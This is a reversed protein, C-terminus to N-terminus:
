GFARRLQERLRYEAYRYLEIEGAYIGELESRQAPALPYRQSVAKDPNTNITRSAAPEPVGLLHCFLRMSDDYLETLGVLFFDELPVANLYWFLSSRINDHRAFEMLSMGSEFFERNFESDEATQPHRLFQYYGSIVREVPDRLWTVKVAGPLLHDYADAQFHGHLCRTQPELEVKDILRPATEELAYMTRLGEGYLDGLFDRFSSGGSKPIHLSIMEPLSATGEFRAPLSVPTAASPRHRMEVRILSGELRGSIEAGVLADQLDWSRSKNRLIIRGNRLAHFYRHAERHLRDVEETTEMYAILRGQPKLCALLERYIFLPDATHDLGNFSYILDFAAEGFSVRVDEPACHRTRTPPNLSHKELELDFYWALEDIPVLEVKHGPASDGLATVPGANVDLIRVRSGKAPLAELAWGPLPRGAQLRERRAEPFPGDPQLWRQWFRLRARRRPPLRDNAM